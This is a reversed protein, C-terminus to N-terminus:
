PSCLLSLEIELKALADVAINLQTKKWKVFSCKGSAEIDQLATNLIAKDCRLVMDEYKILVNGSVVYNNGVINWKDAKVHKLAKLGAPLSSAAGCCFTLCLIFVLLLIGTIQKM